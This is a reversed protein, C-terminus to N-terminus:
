RPFSTISLIFEGDRLLEEIEKRRLSMNSEVNNLYSLLGQGTSVEGYPGGPTGEIMYSGFEPRWLVNRNPGEVEERADMVKLLEEARLSVRCKKNNDDFKVIMYEIQLLINM